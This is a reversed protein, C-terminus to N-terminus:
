SLLASPELHSDESRLFHLYSHVLACNMGFSAFGSPQLIDMSRHYDKDLKVATGYHESAARTVEGSGAYHEM